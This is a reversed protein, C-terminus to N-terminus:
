QLEEKRPLVVTLRFAPESEIAMTGGKSEINRRLSSLGGGEIVKGQPQEGSNSIVAISANETQTLEVFMESGKAHRVTNIACERMVVVLLYATEEAQPLNGSVTIHVGIEDASVLLAALSEVATATHEVYARHDAIEIIRLAQAWREGSKKYDETSSDQTLLNRTALLCLGIDDHVRMKMALTEKERVIQDMEAYLRKARANAEALARNEQELEISKEHLETVNIAQMQTYTNGDADTIPTESFQWLSQDPYRYIAAAKDVITVDPNPADLARWLESLNQLDMGMLAFCLRHMQRNCLIIIGNDSAFCIGSPLNDFGEKISARGIKQKRCFLSM